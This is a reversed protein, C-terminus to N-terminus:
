PMQVDALRKRLFLRARHLRSKLAPLSLNLIERTEEASLGEVDRLVVVTRYEPPLEGLAANIRDALEKRELEDRPISSWDAVPETVMGEENMAPGLEETLPIEKVKPRRRLRMFCANATVRYIWSGVKAEGRFTGAKQFIVLAVEQLVEEADHSNRLMRLSLGYIKGQYRRLIEELASEDQRCIQRLLDADSAGQM